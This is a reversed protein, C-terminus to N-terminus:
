LRNVIAETMRTTSVPKRRAIDYTVYKGEKIVAKTARELASAAKEEGVFRLMLAGALIAATPNVKHKGAYKPASGHVPEFIAGREGINASPLLGLGGVLGACLDSLIDGYLNPCLLVDYDQPKMVLQMAMADVIRDEFYIRPYHESVHRAIALFLGDTAKLINAKHVCTIKKRHHNQAYTFAFHAIRKTNRESIVKLSVATDRPLGKFTGKKFEIGAYLDELNERIVILDVANYPTRVGPLSTAPRVNAFLDLAQRLQVNVSRFGEGVPTTVPGKLAVKNRKIVALAERPLESGYKKKAGSGLQVVDWQVRVGTAEICRVAAATVEPGVGDGPILTLHHM